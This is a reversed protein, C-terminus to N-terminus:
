EKRKIKKRAVRAMGILGTGLLFLTAPEPTPVTETMSFNDFYFEANPHYRPGFLILEVSDFGFDGTYSHVLTDDIFMQGGDSDMNIEFEHWGLTRSVSTRGNDIQGPGGYFYNSGDYDMIGLSTRNGPEPSTITSNTLTLFSYHTTAGPASDYFWVSVNGKIIESFSHKLWIYKQSVGTEGFKASQSGSHAVNSSLEVTGNSQYLDTWFPDFSAAEFDDSFTIATANVSCVTGILFMVIALVTLLQRKMIVGKGKKKKTPLRVQFRVLIVPILVRHGVM